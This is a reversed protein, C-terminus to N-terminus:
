SSALRLEALKALRGSLAHLPERGSLHLNRATLHRYPRILSAQNETPLKKQSQHRAAVLVSAADVLHLDSLHDVEM